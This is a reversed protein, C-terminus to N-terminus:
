AVEEAWYLHVRSTFKSALDFVRRALEEDRTILVSMTSMQGFLGLENQLRKLARYFAFRNKGLGIDYEVLWVYKAEILPATM